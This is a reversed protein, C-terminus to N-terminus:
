RYYQSCQSVLALNIIKKPRGRGSIRMFMLKTEYQVSIQELCNNLALLNELTEDMDASSHALCTTILYGIQM